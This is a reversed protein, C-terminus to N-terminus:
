PYVFGESIAAIGIKGVFILGGEEPWCEDLLSQMWTPLADWTQQPTGQSVLCLADLVYDQFADAASAALSVVARRTNLGLTPTHTDVINSAMVFATMLHPDADARAIVATGLTSLATQFDPSSM